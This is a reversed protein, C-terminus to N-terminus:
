GRFLQRWRALFAAAEVAGEPPAWPAFDTPALPVYPGAKAEFFVTGPELAVVTHWEDADLTVGFIHGGALLEPTALVQGYHDFTIVGLRGRVVILTEDKDGASHRHPRVYSGPEIANLLRNCPHAPRDHFNHNMRQRPAARAASSTADLLATTILNMAPPGSPFLQQRRQMPDRPQYRESAM